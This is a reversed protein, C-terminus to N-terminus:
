QLTSRNVVLNFRSTYYCYFREKDRAAMQSERLLRIFANLDGHLTVIGDVIIFYLFHLVGMFNEGNMLTYVYLPTRSSSLKLIPPPAPLLLGVNSLTLQTNHPCAVVAPPSSPSSAFFFCTRTLGYIEAAGSTARNRTPAALPAARGPCLPGMTPGLFPVSVGGFPRATDFRM